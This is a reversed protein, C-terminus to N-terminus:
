IEIKTIYQQNASIYGNKTKITYIRGNKVVTGSIRSNKALYEGTRNDKTLRLSKYVNVTERTEFLKGDKWYNAAPAPKAAPKILPKAYKAGTLIGSFDISADVHLGKYNDTFQWAGAGNVGPRDTGYSAVWTNKETLRAMNIKGSNFWYASGYIVRCRYGAQKLENLFIAVQGTIDGAMTPEEVDIALPTTTDMGFAKVWKLFYTAEAKGSGQFYHYLGVTKFAKLGNTVQNGAKPNLYNTGDTLKVMLGQVGAKKLMNMFAPTDNQYSAIDSIITSM